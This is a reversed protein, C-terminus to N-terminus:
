RGGADAKRGRWIEVAGSGDADQTGPTVLGKLVEWLPALHYKSIKEYYAQRAGTINHKSGPTDIALTM